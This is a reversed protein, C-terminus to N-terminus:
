LGAGVQKELGLKDGKKEAEEHKMWVLSHHETTIGSGVRISGLIGEERGMIGSSRQMAPSSDGKKHSRDLEM